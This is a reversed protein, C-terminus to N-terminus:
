MLRDRQVQLNKNEPVPAPEAKPPPKNGIATALAPKPRWETARELLKAGIM